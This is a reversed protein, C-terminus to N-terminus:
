AHRVTRGRDTAVFRANCIVVYAMSVPERRQRREEGTVMFVSVPKWVM